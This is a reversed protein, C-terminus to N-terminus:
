DRQEAQRMRWQDDLYLDEVKRRAWDTKRLFRLSSSISPQFAFCNIRIQDALDEWGRREVLDELIVKLTIGHLPNNPQETSM